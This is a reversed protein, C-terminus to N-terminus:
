VLSKKLSQIESTALKEGEVGKLFATPLANFSNRKSNCSSNSYLSIDFCSIFFFYLFATLCNTSSSSTLGINPLAKSGPQLTISASFNAILQCPKFKGGKGSSNSQSCTALCYTRLTLAKSRSSLSNRAIKSEWCWSIM